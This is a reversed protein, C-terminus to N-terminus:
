SSHRGVGFLAPSPRDGAPYEGYAADLQGAATRLEDYGRSFSADDNNRLGTDRDTLGQVEVNLATLMAVNGKTYQPPVTVSSLDRILARVLPLVAEDTGYCANIDAGKDCAGPSSGIPNWPTSAQILAQWDQSWLQRYAAENAHTSPSVPKSVTVSCGSAVCVVCM